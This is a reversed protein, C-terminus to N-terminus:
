MPNAAASVGHGGVDGDLEFTVRIEPVLPSAFLDALRQKKKIATEPQVSDLRFVTSDSRQGNRTGVAVQPM